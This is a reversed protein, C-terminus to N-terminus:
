LSVHRPAQPFVGELADALLEFLDGMEGSNRAVGRLGATLFAVHKKFDARVKVLEDLISTDEDLIFTSYGEGGDSTEDEDSSSESEAVRSRKHYRHSHASFYSGAEFDDSNLGQTLPSSVVDTFRIGLDMTSVLAERLPQIRKSCLCGHELASIYSAHVAIMEDITGSLRARASSTLSDIVYGTLHNYVTNIFFSLQFCLGQALKQVPGAGLSVNQTCFYARRELSFKVRRLQRLLLAIKQYSAISRPLVVNAIPWFVEYSVTLANLIKVSRRRSEMTRSSTHASRVTILEPDISEVSSFTDVLADACLFRDNWVEVCRDIQEFVRCEFRQWVAGNRCLFVHELADLLRSFGCEEELLMTLKATTNALATALHRNVIMDFIACFSTSSQQQAFNYAEKASAALPEIAEFAGSGPQLQALFAATKGITLINQAGQKLFNPIRTDDDATIHFWNHWLTVREVPHPNESIFLRVGDERIRGTSIWTDLPRAYLQLAAIFISLALELTKEDHCCYTSDIFAFVNDLATVPDNPPLLPLVKLMRRLPLSTSRAVQLIQLLSEIGQSPLRQLVHDQMTSFSIEIASLNERIRDEILQMVNSEQRLHLWRRISNIESGLAAVECLLSSSAAADLHKLRYRPEPEIAHPLINFISTQIGQLMLLVEQMAQTETLCVEPGPLRWFQIKDLQSVTFQLSPSLDDLVRASFRGRLAKNRSPSPSVAASSLSGGDAEDEDSSLDSYNPIEWISDQRDVPDDAEIEKWTLVEPAQQALRGTAVDGDRTSKAPNDSLHLLLDLVDPIWRDDHSRLEVRCSYLKAALDDLNFVQFKEELGTLRENVEFQNTRAYNHNRITRMFNEKLKRDQLSTSTSPLLAVALEAM